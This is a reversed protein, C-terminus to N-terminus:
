KYPGNWMVVLQRHFSVIDVPWNARREALRCSPLPVTAWITEVSSDRTTPKGSPKGSFSNVVNVSVSRSIVCVGERTITM